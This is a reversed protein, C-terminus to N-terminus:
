TAESLVREVIAAFWPTYAAPRARVDTLLEDAGVWKCDDVEAANPSLTGDFRGVFVHDFEHETLGSTPDTARYTFSFVEQLETDFGLEERLRLHAADILSQGRRPHSCCANTWLGGFHYKDPARRQLLMQGATNFIFVSFARHLKGGNQHARLKTEYGVPNDHEDVLILEDSESM